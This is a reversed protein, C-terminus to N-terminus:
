LSNKFLQNAQDSALQNALKELNEKSTTVVDAGSLFAAEISGIQRVSGVLLTPPEPYHSTKIWNKFSSVHRSPDLGQDYMKGWFFSVIKAGSITSLKGQMFSTVCTANVKIGNKALFNVAELNSFSVPVKLYLDVKRGFLEQLNRAEVVMENVRDSELQISLPLDFQKVSEVYDSLIQTSSKMVSKRAASVLTLNTTLGSIIGKSVLSSVDDPNLGDYYFM